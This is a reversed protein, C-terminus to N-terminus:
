EKFMMQNKSLKKNENKYKACFSNDRDIPNLFRTTNTFGDLWNDLNERLQQKTMLRDTM